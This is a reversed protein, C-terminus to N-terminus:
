DTLMDTNWTKRQFWILPSPYHQSDGYITNHAISSMKKINLVPIIIFNNTQLTVSDHSRERAKTDNHYYLGGIGNYLKWTVEIACYPLLLIMETTILDGDPGQKPKRQWMVKTNEYPRFSTPSPKTESHIQPLVYAPNLLTQRYSTGSILWIFTYM